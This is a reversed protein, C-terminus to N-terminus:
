NVLTVTFGEDQLRRLLGDCRTPDKRSPQLVHSMGLAYFRVGGAINKRMRALWRENRECVIQRDYVGQQWPLFESLHGTRISDVFATNARAIVANSPYSFKAPDLLALQQQLYHIRLPGMNCFADFIDYKEDISASEKRGIKHRQSRLYNGIEPRSAYDPDIGPLSEPHQLQTSTLYSTMAALLGYESLSHTVSHAFIRSAERLNRRDQDTLGPLNPPPPMLALMAREVDAHAKKLIDIKEKTDPIPVPCVPAEAPLMASAELLFFDAKMAIPVVIKYFYDDHEVALGNHTVPLIYFKGTVGEDSKGSIEWLRPPADTAGVLGSILSLPLAVELMMKALRNM